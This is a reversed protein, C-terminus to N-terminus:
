SRNKPTNGNGLWDPWNVWGQDRYVEYPHSPIDSPRVPLHPLKGKSWLQWETQSRLKLSRAFDRASAFDRFARHQNAVRGTGLWDGWGNWGENKYATAPNKPIIAKMSACFDKYKSSSVFEKWETTSKLKQLRVWSRAEEFMLKNKRISRGECVPCFQGRFMLNNHRASFQHGKACLYEYKAGAGAYDGSLLTGDHSRAYDRIASLDGKQKERLSRMACKKCWAGALVESGTVSWQHRDLNCEFLYKEKTGLWKNSLLKGNKNKAIVELESLRDERIYAENFNVSRSKILGQDIGLAESQALIEKVFEEKPMQYNLRLLRIGRLRCLEDKMRDDQMRVELSAKGPSFPGRVKFHQIGDYEFAIGLCESLGDLEMQRGRANRLWKPRKKPFSTSFIQEFATRALEESIGAKSCTPCWQGIQIKKFQNEWRHGLNCQWLYNTDVNIYETSLLVGGREAAIEMLDEISYINIGRCKQCWANQGVVSAWSSEWVHKQGCEFRFRASKKTDGSLHELCKGGMSAARKDCDKKLRTIKENTKCAGCWQKKRMVEAHSLKLRHGASCEIVMSAHPDKYPGTHLTARERELADYLKSKRQNAAQIELGRKPNGKGSLHGDPTQWFEGFDPDLILVKSRASVYETRSYDYLDGHVKRAQSIFEELTKKRSM